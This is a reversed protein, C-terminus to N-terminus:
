LCGLGLDKFKLDSKTSNVEDEAKKDEAKSLIKRSGTMPRKKKSVKGSKSKSKLIKFENVEKKDLSYEIEKVDINKSLEPSISHLSNMATTLELSSQSSEPTLTTTPKVTTSVSQIDVQLESSVAGALEAKNSQEQKHLLQGNGAM